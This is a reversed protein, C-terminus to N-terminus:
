CRLTVYLQLFNSCVKSMWLNCINCYYEGFITSCSICQNTKSSQRTQCNKCIIERIEYRNMPPHGPQSLEDHCIRCGFIRNCCPSVINCNREYHVCAANTTTTNNTANNGGTSNTSGNMGGNNNMHSPLVPSPAPAVVLRNQSMLQQIRMRKEQETLSKDAMIQQIARRRAIASAEEVSPEMQSQTSSSPVSSPTTTTPGAATAASTTPQAAAATSSVIPATESSSSSVPGTHQQQQQQMSSSNNNNNMGNYAADDTMDDDGDDIDDDDDDVEEDDDEDFEGDLDSIMDMNIDDEDDMRGDNDSM